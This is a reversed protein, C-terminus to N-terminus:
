LLVALYYEEFICPALAKEERKQHGQFTVQVTESKICNEAALAAWCQRRKREGFTKSHLWKSTHKM